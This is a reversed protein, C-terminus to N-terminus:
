EAIPSEGGRPLDDVHIPAEVRDRSPDVLLMGAGAEVTPPRDEESRPFALTFTAGGDSTQELWVRGNMAETLDKVINLGLGTGGKFRTDPREIQTFREFITDHYEHPIGEGHDVVAIWVEDDVSRATLEIAAWEAYKHANDLLNTIVRSFHEVDLAVPPLLPAVDVIVNEQWTPVIKVMRKLAAEVDITELRIALAENDIKSVTLLDEILHKLRNAQATASDLLSLSTPDKPALEPRAMTSLAGIVSTLPTRLEHSVVSVFDSKLQALEAMRRGTEQSQEYRALHDLVLGAPTALLELAALDAETFDTAKDAVILAGITRGEVRLPVAAVREVGLDALLRDGSLDVGDIENSMYPAGSGFVTAATANGGVDFEYGEAELAQGAVWIPSLAALIEEEPRHLVVLGVKAEVYGATRAVLEPLVERLDEGLGITRSVEYLQMLESERRRLAARQHNLTHLQRVTQAAQSRLEAITIGVIIATTALAAVRFGQGYQTAQIPSISIAVGYAALTASVTSAFGLPALLVGAYIIIWAAAVFLGLASDHYPATAMMATALMSLWLFILTSALKRELIRKWPVLTFVFTGAAITALPILLEDDRLRGIDWLYWTFGGVGVWSGALGLRISRLRSEALHGRKDRNERQRQDRRSQAQSKVQEQVARVQSAADARVEKLEGEARKRATRLHQRTERKTWDGKPIQSLHFDKSQSRRKAVAVRDKGRQREEAIALLAARKATRHAKWDARLSASEAPTELLSPADPGDSAVPVTNTKREVAVPETPALEPQPEAEAPAKAKGARKEAKARSKHDSKAQKAEAKKDRNDQKRPDGEERAAARASQSEQKALAKSQRRRRRRTPSDEPELAPEAGPVPQTPAPLAPASAPTQASRLPSRERLNQLSAVLHSDAPPDELTPEPANAREPEAVPSEDPLPKEPPPPRSAEQAPNSLRRKSPRLNSMQQYINKEM